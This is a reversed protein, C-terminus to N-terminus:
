VAALFALAEARMQDTEAHGVNAFVHVEANVGADRLVGSFRQARELRNDGIYGDWQHPVDTPDSDRAGVGVWIPVGSFDAANFPWGFLDNFNAVGYPFALAVDSGNAAVSALPLTYTGASVIAVGGVRDPYALAFRNAAQGGRSFGYVLVRPNVALGTLDPLRDLFAALRATQVVDERAVQAPDRWDGYITTPAVVVWHEADARPVLPGAEDEGTGGMGHLALLVNLPETAGAPIHVFFDDVRLEAGPHVRAPALAVTGSHDGDIEAGHVPRALLPTALDPGTLLVVASFTLLSVLGM